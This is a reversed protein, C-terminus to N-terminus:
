YNHEKLFSDLREAAKAIDSAEIRDIFGLIKQQGQLTKLMGNSLTQFNQMFGDTMARLDNKIDDRVALLTTEKEYSSAPEKFVSKEEESKLIEGEGTMLWKLNYKPFAEIIKLIVDVGPQGDKKELMNLYGTSKSIKREFQSKNVEERERIINIRDIIRM